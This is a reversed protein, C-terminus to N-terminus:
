QEEVSVRKRFTPQMNILKKLATAIMADLMEFDPFQHQGTISRSTVLEDTSKAIEVEKIWLMTIQPDATEYVFKLESTSKGAKFNLITM